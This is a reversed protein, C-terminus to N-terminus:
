KQGPKTLGARVDAEFEVISIPNGPPRSLRAELERRLPLDRLRESLVASVLQSVISSGALSRNEAIRGEFRFAQRRFFGRLVRSLVHVASIGRVPLFAHQDEGM